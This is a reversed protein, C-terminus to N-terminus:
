KTAAPQASQAVRPVVHDLAHVAHHTVGPHVITADVSAAMQHANEVLPTVALHVITADVSAAM